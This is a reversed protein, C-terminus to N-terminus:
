CPGRCKIYYTAYVRFNICQQASRLAQFCYKVGHHDVQAGASNETDIWGKLYAVQNQADAPAHVSPNRVFISFPRQSNRIKSSQDELMQLFTPNTTITDNAGKDITYALPELITTTSTTEGSSSTGVTPMFMLKVGTIKFARYLNMFDTYNPLDALKFKFIGQWSLSGTYNTIQNGDASAVWTPSVYYYPTLQCTRKFSYVTNGTLPRPVRSRRVKKLSRRPRRTTRRRYVM